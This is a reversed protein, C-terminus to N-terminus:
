DVVDVSDRRVPHRVRSTGSFTVVVALMVCGVGVIEWVTPFESFLLGVAVAVAPYMSQMVSFAGPTTKRMVVQDIVYPFFSSFVSVVFMLLLLHLIGWGGETVLWTATQPPVFLGRVAPVALFVSQIAFGICMAVSLRNLPSGANAVQRGMIIYVGWMSGGILIAVLGVIFHGGDPSALSMGALLVVGVAAIVIGIRERWNRGTLVAVGLPGIFEIAVAMGMNMQSIALYFMTNMAVIAFGCGATILWDHRTNPLTNRVERRWPRRWLLMLLALFGFRYWAACLPNIQTFVSKATGTAIYMLAGEIAVIVVAPTADLMRVVFKKM